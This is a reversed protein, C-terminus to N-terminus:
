HDPKLRDKSFILGYFELSTKNCRCKPGNLTLGKERFRQLVSELATSHEQQTSGWVIVDDSMNKANPIDQITESIKHQFIEAASNVGFCLRTYHHLGKHNSFTTLNRSEEDLMLQHYEQRLDLKSFITAGNLDNILEDTTPM